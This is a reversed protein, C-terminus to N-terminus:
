AGLSPVLDMIRMRILVIKRMGEVRGVVLTRERRGFDHVSLKSRKRVHEIISILANGNPLRIIL